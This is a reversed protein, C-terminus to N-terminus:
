WVCVCLVFPMQERTEQLAQAAEHQLFRRLAGAITTFIRPDFSVTAKTLQVM